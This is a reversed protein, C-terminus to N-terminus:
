CNYTLYKNLDYEINLRINKKNNKIYRNMGIIEDDDDTHMIILILEYENDFDIDTRLDKQYQNFSLINNYELNIIRGTNGIKIDLIPSVININKNKDFNIEIQSFKSLYSESEFDYKYIYKINDVKDEIIIKKNLIIVISLNIGDGVIDFTPNGHIDSSASIFKINRPLNLYWNSDLDIISNRGGIGNYHIWNPSKIIFNTNLMPEFEFVYNEICEFLDRQMSFARSYFNSAHLINKSIKEGKNNYFSFNDIISKFEVSEISNLKWYKFRKDLKNNKTKADYCVENKPDFQHDLIIKYVGDETIVPIYQKKICEEVTINSKLNESIKKIGKKNVLCNDLPYLIDELNNYNLKKNTVKKNNM